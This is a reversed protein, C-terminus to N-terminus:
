GDLAALMEDLNVNVGLEKLKTAHREVQKRRKDAGPDPNLGVEKRAEGLLETYRGKSEEILQKVARSRASNALAIPTNSPGGKDPRRKEDTAM